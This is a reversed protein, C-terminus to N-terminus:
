TSPLWTHSKGCLVGFMVRNGRAVNWNMNLVLPLEPAHKQELSGSRPLISELLQQPNEWNTHSPMTEQQTEKEREVLLEAIDREVESLWEERLVEDSFGESRSRM